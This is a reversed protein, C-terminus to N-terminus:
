VRCLFDPKLGNTPMNLLRAFTMLLIAGRSAAEALLAPDDVGAFATDQVRVIDLDPYACLIGRLVDNNFNEDALFRMM